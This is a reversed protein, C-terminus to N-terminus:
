VEKSLLRPQQNPTALARGGYRKKEQRGSLISIVHEVTDLADELYRKNAENQSGLNKALQAADAVARRFPAQREQPLFGVLDILKAPRGDQQPALKEMTERRAAQAAALRQGLSLKKESTGLLRDHQGSLLIEKEEGVVELLERYFGIETVLQDTIEDMAPHM